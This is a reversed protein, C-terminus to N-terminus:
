THSYQCPLMCPPLESGLAIADGQLRASGEPQDSGAAAALVVEAGGVVEVAGESTEFSVDAGFGGGGGLRRMVLALPDHLHLSMRRCTGNNAPVIGRACLSPWAQPYKIGRRLGRWAAAERSDM